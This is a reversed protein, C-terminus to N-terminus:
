YLRSGPGRIDIRTVGWTQSLHKSLNAKTLRLYHPDNYNNNDRWFAFVFQFLFTFSNESRNFYGVAFFVIVNM